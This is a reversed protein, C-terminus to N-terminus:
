MWEGEAPTPTVTYLVDFDIVCDSKKAGPDEPRQIYRLIESDFGKKDEGWTAIDFAELKHRPELILVAAYIWNIKGYHKLIKDRATKRDWEFIKGEINDILINICVVVMPLALYKEERWSLIEQIDDPLNSVKNTFDKSHCYFGNILGVDCQEKSLLALEEDLSM